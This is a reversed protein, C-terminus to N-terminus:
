FCSTFSNDEVQWLTWRLTSGAVEGCSKGLGGACGTISAVNQAIAQTNTRIM